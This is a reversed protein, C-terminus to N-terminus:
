KPLTPAQIRATIARRRELWLPGAAVILTDIALRFLTSAYGEIGAPPSMRRLHKDWVRMSRMQHDLWMLFPQGDGEGRHDLWLDVMWVMAFALIAAAIITRRGDRCPLFLLTAPLVALLAAIFMRGANLDFGGGAMARAGAMGALSVALFIAWSRM